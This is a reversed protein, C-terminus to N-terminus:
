GFGLSWIIYFRHMSPHFTILSVQHNTQYMPFLHLHIHNIIWGRREKSYILPLSQLKQSMIQMWYNWITVQILIQLFIMHSYSAKFFYFTSIIIFVMTSINYDKPLSGWLPSDKPAHPSSGQPTTRVYLNSKQHAPSGIGFFIYLRMNSIM